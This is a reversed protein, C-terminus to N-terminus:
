KLVDFQGVGGAGAYRCWGTTSSDRQCAPIILRGAAAPPCADLAISSPPHRLHHQHACLYTHALPLDHLPTPTCALASANFPRGAPLLMHTRCHANLPWAAACPHWPFPLPSFLLKGQLRKQTQLPAQLVKVVCSATCHWRMWTAGEQVTAREGCGTECRYSRGHRSRYPGKDSRM